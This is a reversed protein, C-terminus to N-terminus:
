EGLIVLCPTLIVFKPSAFPKQNAKRFTQRKSGKCFAVSRNALRLGCCFFGCFGLRLRSPAKVCTVGDKKDNHSFVCLFGKSSTRFFCKLCPNEGQGQSIVEKLFENKKKKKKQIFKGGNKHQSPNAIKKIKLCIKYHM